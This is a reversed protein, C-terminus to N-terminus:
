EVNVDFFRLLRAGEEELHAQVEEYKKTRFNCLPCGYFVYENGEVMTKAAQSATQMGPMFENTKYKGYWQKWLEETLVLTGLPSGREDVGTVLFQCTAPRIPSGEVRKTVRVETRAGEGHGVLYIKNFKLTVKAASM